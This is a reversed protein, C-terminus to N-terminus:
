EAVVFKEYLSFTEDNLKKDTNMKTLVEVIIASISPVIAFDKSYLVREEGEEPDAGPENWTIMGTVANNVFKLMDNENDDFSVLERFERLQKLTKFDGEKPLINLLVIREKVLLKM